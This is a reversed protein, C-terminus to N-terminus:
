SFCHLYKGDCCNGAQRVPCMLVLTCTHLHLHCIWAPSPYLTCPSNTISVQIPLITITTTPPLFSTFDAAKLSSLFGPNQHISLMRGAAAGYPLHTRLTNNTGMRFPSFSCRHKMQALLLFEDCNNLFSRPFICECFPVESEAKQQQM